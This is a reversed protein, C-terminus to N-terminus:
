NNIIENLDELKKLLKRGKELIKYNDERKIFDKKILEKLTNQLTVHSVKTEKFLTSYTANKRELIKLVLLVCKDKVADFIM